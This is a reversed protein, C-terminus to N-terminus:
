KRASRGVPEVLALVVDNSRMPVRLVYNGTRGIRMTASTEPLDRTLTQLETLQGPSLSAPSGMELYRTHADNAKFGTRRVTIRYSGPALGSFHLEVPRAERAPLVKTFFPRNSLEQKPQQWDWLLAATRGESTSIWSQADAAPVERGGLLNLYKYAFFAPKRIGERNILGFGGHFPTPPPGAEEFLDSFTWYSMGQALGRTAKLKTLIYAAAIYSDHVPDRPNYSASWETFFLPLRPFKSATIQQRVRRVDGIVADPNTSLRNDDQGKEDLFGGDVGYTHTAVFDVPLGRKSAFDLFEPVWAAGATAPGGIRLRPDIAKIARASAEYLEFYAKQDAREWFGDLNPENWVEFYWSRIEAEGYRSRLHRVFADVLTRWARPEPHSTNGKWFFITQPSSAIAEPTFGLEVFPKIGMGLLADYLQDIKTWDYVPKGNELRVTRFVDHFIAHFRIYRFGLEDVAIELQALSEPRILTGPYDSGVSFNFSRDLPAGAKRLDIDIRRAQTAVPSEPQAAAPTALCALVTAAAAAMRLFRGLSFQIASM